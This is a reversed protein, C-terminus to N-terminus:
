PSCVDGVALQVPRSAHMHCVLLKEGQLMLIMLIATVFTFGYAASIRCAALVTQSVPPSFFLAKAPIRKMSVDIRISSDINSSADAAHSALCEVSVDLTLLM